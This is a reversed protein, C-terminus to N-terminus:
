NRVGSCQMDGKDVITYWTFLLNSDVLAIKEGVGIQQLVSRTVPQTRNVSVNEVVLYGPLKRMFYDMFKYLSVDEYSQADISIPSGLIVYDSDELDDNVYCSPSSVKFNGGIIGSLRMAEDVAVRVIDREQKKFFGSEKLVAFDDKKERLFVLEDQINLNKTKTENYQTTTSTLTRKDKVLTPKIYLETYAALIAALLFIGILLAVKRKSIYKSDFM